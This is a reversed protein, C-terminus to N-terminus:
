ELRVNLGRVKRAWLRKGAASGRRVPTAPACRPAPELGDQELRGAFRATDAAQRAATELRNM